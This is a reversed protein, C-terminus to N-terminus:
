RTAARGVGACAGGRGTTRGGARRTCRRAAGKWAGRRPIHAGRGPLYANVGAGPARAGHRVRVRGDRLGDVTLKVARITQTHDGGRIDYGDHFIWSRGRLRVGWRGVPPGHPLSRSRSSNTRSSGRSLLSDKTGSPGSCDRHVGCGPRGISRPGSGRSRRRFTRPASSGDAMVCDRLCRTFRHSWSHNGIEHGDALLRRTADPFAKVNLGVQFFTAHVGRDVFFDALQSTYPENPGYDFTLAVVRQREGRAPSRGLRQSSSSMRVWYTLAAASVACAGVGM